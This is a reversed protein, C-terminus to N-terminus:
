IVVAWVGATMQRGTVNYLCFEVSTSHLCSLVSTIASGSVAEVCRKTLDDQASLLAQGQDAIDAQAAQLDQFDHSIAACERQQHKKRNELM